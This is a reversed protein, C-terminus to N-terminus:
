IERMKPAVNGDSVPTRRAVDAHALIFVADESFDSV